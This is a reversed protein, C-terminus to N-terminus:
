MGAWQQWTIDMVVVQFFIHFCYGDPTKHCWTRIHTEQYIACECFIMIMRSTQCICFPHPITDLHTLIHMPYLRDLRTNLTHHLIVKLDHNSLVRHQYRTYNERSPGAYARTKRWIVMVVEPTSARQSQTHIPWPVITCAGHRVDNWPCSM